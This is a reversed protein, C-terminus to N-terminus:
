SAAASAYRGSYHNFHDYSQFLSYSRAKIIRCAIAFHLVSYHSSTIVKGFTGLLAKARIRVCTGEVLCNKHRGLRIM